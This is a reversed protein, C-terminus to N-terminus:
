GMVSTTPYSQVSNPLQNGDGEGEGVVSSPRSRRAARYPLSSRMLTRFGTDQTDSTSGHAGEFLHAIFVELPMGERNQLALQSQVTQSAKEAQIPGARAVVGAITVAPQFAGGDPFDHGFYLPPVLGSRLLLLPGPANGRTRMSEVRSTGNQRIASQRDAKDASFSFRLRMWSAPM